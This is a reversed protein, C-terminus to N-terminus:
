AAWPPVGRYPPRAALPHPRPAALPCGPLWPPLRKLDSAVQFAVVITASAEICTSSALRPLSDGILIASLCVLCQRQQVTCSLSLMFLNLEPM